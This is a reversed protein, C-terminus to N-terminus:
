RGKRNSLHGSAPSLAETIGEMRARAARVRGAALGHGRSPRTPLPARQVDGALSLVFTGDLDVLRFTRGPEIGYKTRLEAPLTLSGLQRVQITAEM